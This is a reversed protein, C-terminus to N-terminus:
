TCRTIRRSIPDVTCDTLVNSIIAIFLTTTASVRFKTHIKGCYGQLLEPQQILILETNHVTLEFYM